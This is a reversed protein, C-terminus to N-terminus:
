KVVPGLDYCQYTYEWFARGKNSGLPYDCWYTAPSPEWTSTDFHYPYYDEAMAPPAVLALMVMLVAGLLVLKKISHRMKTRGKKVTLVKSKRSLKLLV